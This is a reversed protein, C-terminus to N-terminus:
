GTATNPFKAKLELVLQIFGTEGECHSWHVFVFWFTKIIVVSLENAFVFIVIIVGLFINQM